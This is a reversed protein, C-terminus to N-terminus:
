NRCLSIVRWGDTELSVGTADASGMIKSPYNRMQESDIGFFTTIPFNKKGSHKITQGFIPLEWEADSGVAMVIKGYVDTNSTSTTIYASLRLLVIDGVNLSSFNFSNTTTDWINGHDFIKHEKNTYPGLSDNTIEYWTDALTFEIPTTKTALDNYDQWGFSNEILLGRQVLDLDNEAM